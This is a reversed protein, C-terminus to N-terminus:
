SKPKEFILFFWRHNPDSQFGKEERVFHLGNRAGDELVFGKPIRHQEASVTRAQGPDAEDDIIALLGGPKLARNLGVLMADYDRMEHYALVVLIADLAGAPLKPDSETGLTTEIQTVGEKAAQQRIKQLQDDSIDEAYVKGRTGVRSALHFTFYGGGAGVDAVAQGARIGLADMVEAPRQWVDRKEWESTDPPSSTPAINKPRCDVATLAIMLSAIRGWRGRGGAFRPGTFKRPESCGPLANQASADDRPGRGVGCSAKLRTTAHM